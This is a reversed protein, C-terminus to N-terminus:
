SAINRALRATSFPARRIPVLSSAVYGVGSPGIGPPPAMRAEITVAEPTAGM